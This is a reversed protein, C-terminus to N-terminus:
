SDLWIKFAAAKNKGIYIPIKSEIITEVKLRCNGMRIVKKISFASVIVQRNARFFCNQGLSTLLTDLSEGSCSRKGQTDVVYTITNETYIYAVEDVPVVHIENRLYTLIRQRFIRQNEIAIKPKELNSVEETIPTTDLTESTFQHSSLQLQLSDLQKISSTYIGKLKVTRSYNFLVFLALTITMLILLQNQSYIEEVPTVINEGYIKSILVYNYYLFNM